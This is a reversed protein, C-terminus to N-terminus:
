QTVGINNFSGTQSSFSYNGNGSQSVAVQNFSGNVAGTISNTNGSQLTALQNSNGVVAVNFLNGAGNQTFLGVTLGSVSAADSGSTFSAASNNDDGNIHLQLSNGAGGLQVVNGVNRSGDVYVHAGNSGGNQSIDVLNNDSALSTGGSNGWGISM